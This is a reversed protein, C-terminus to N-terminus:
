PLFLVICNKKGWLTYVVTFLIYQNENDQQMCLHHYNQQQSHTYTWMLPMLWHQSNQATLVTYNYHIEILALSINYKTPTMSALRSIKAKIEIEVPGYKKTKVNVGSQLVTSNWLMSVNKHWKQKAKTSARVVRHESITIRLTKEINSTKQQWKKHM